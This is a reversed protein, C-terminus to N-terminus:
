LRQAATMFAEAEHANETNEAQRLLAARIGENDVAGNPDTKLREMVSQVARVFDDRIQIMAWRERFAVVAM